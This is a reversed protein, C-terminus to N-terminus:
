RTGVARYAVPQLAIREGNPIAVDGAAAVTSTEIGHSSMAEQLAASPPQPGAAASPLPSPHRALLLVAGAACSLLLTTKM